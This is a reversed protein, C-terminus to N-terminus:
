LWKGYIKYDDSYTDRVFDICKKTPICPASNNRNVHVWPLVKNSSSELYLKVQDMQKINFIKTFKESSTGLHHVLPFTHGRITGWAENPLDPLNKQFEDIFEDISIVKGLRLTRCVLHSYASCFREIPDRIVCFTQMNKEKVYNESVWKHKWRNTPKKEVFNPLIAKRYITDNVLNESMGVKKTVDTNELWELWTLITTNGCKPVQYYALKEPLMEFIRKM